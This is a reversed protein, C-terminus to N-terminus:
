RKTAFALVMYLRLVKRRGTSPGLYVVDAVISVCFTADRCRAVFRYLHKSLSLM